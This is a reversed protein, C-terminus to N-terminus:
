TFFYGILVYRLTKGIFMTLFTIIPSVRFVGLGISIVDGFIPTWCLLGLFAGYKQIRAQFRIVKEKPTRLAREIWNWKALWGLYYSFMGGLTNGISAVIIAVMLNEQNIIAAFHAESSFPIFTAALFSSLFLFLM